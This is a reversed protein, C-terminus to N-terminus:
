LFFFVSINFLFGVIISKNLDEVERRKILEIDTNRYQDPPLEAPQSEIEVQGQKFVFQVYLDLMDDIRADKTRSHYEISIIFM